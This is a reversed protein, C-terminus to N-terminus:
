NFNTPKCRICNAFDRLSANQIWCLKLEEIFFINSFIEALRKDRSDIYTQWLTQIWSRIIDSLLQIILRSANLIRQRLRLAKRWYIVIQINSDCSDSLFKGNGNKAKKSVQLPLRCMEAPSDDFRPSMEADELVSQLQSGRCVSVFRNSSLDDNFCIKLLMLSLPFLQLRRCVIVFEFCRWVNKNSARKTIEIM